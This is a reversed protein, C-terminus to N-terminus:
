WETKAPMPQTRLKERRSPGECSPPLEALTAEADKVRRALDDRVLNKRIQNAAQGRVADEPMDKPTAIKLPTEELIWDDTRQAALPVGRHDVLNGM